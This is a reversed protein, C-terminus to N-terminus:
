RAKGGYVAEWVGTVPNKALLGKITATQSVGDRQYTTAVSARFGFTMDGTLTIVCTISINPIDFSIEPIPMKFQDLFVSSATDQDRDFNGPAEAKLSELVFSATSWAIPYLSRGMHSTLWTEEDITSTMLELLYGSTLLLFISVTVALITGFFGKKKRM